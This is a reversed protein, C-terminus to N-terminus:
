GVEFDRAEGHKKRGWEAMGRALDESFKKDYRLGSQAHALRGTRWTLWDEALLGGPHRILGCAIDLVKDGNSHERTGYLGFFAAVTAGCTGCFSRLTGESSVYTKSTGLRLDDPFAPSLRSMPVFLWPIVHVGTQLRCDDCVDMVAMWKQPDYPSVWSKYEADAQMEPTPRLVAFSVGGCHCELQLTDPDSGIGSVEEVAPGDVPSEGVGDARPFWDALGSLSRDCNVHKKEGWVVPVDDRNADFISTSIVWDGDEIGIDGIHCSCTSCFYRDSLATAHRYRTLKGLSSPAVWQPAVGPPLQSHFVGFSGHVQRCISCHCIHVGLPLADAAVEITFHINKCFCQATLTKTQM